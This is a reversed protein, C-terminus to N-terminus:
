AQSAAGFALDGVHALRQARHAAIWGDQVAEEADASSLMTRATALLMNHHAKVLQGFAAQDGQRLREIFEPSELTPDM